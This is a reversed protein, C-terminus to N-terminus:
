EKMRETERERGRATKIAYVAYARFAFVRRRHDGRRRRESLLMSAAGRQVLLRATM